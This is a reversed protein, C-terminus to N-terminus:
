PQAEKEYRAAAGNVIANLSMKLIVPSIEEAVLCRMEQIERGAIERAITECYDQFASLDYRNGNEYRDSMAMASLVFGAYRPELLLREVGGILRDSPLDCDCGDLDVLVSMTIGREELRSFISRDATLGNQHLVAEKVGDYVVRAILEGMKTHGGSNQIEAGEGQVVIINDTGTGTAPHLMPTESSRIDLDQLAATKAETATIMARTMARASLKMNALLLINITGPEYFRGKDKAMRLANSRVGATVLAHVSMDKHSAQQVSLHDMDAGTFLFSATDKSTGLIGYVKNQLAELGAQHGLGWTQPPLYHNGVVAIGKRWGDLSSLIAQNNLFEVVLTKGTFDLIRSEFVHAAKVYSLKMAIPRKGVVAEKKELRETDSFSERYVRSALWSVFEGTHTAARCTLECPFYYIRGNKLADVDRWGPRGFYKEAVKRDGGCGYLVQPNFKQWAELDVPVAGGVGQFEPAICGAARIMENQFSDSGPTMIEDRGMFRMVRMRRSSPIKSTKRRILDLDARISATMERARQECAFLKGLLHIKELSDSISLTDMTIVLTGTKQFARAIQGHRESVLLLDPELSKIKEISPSSFGGVIEKGAAGPMNASHHTIGLVCDGAGIQFIMETASPVLSVVRGPRSDVCVPQGASDIVSVPYSFSSPPATLGALIIVAWGLIGMSAKRVTDKSFDKQTLLYRM